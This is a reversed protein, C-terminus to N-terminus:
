VGSATAIWNPEQHPIGYRDCFNKIEARWQKTIGAYADSISQAIIPTLDVPYRNWMSKYSERIFVIWPPDNEPGCEQFGIKENDYLDNPDILRTRPITDSFERFTPLDDPDLVFGFFVNATIESM